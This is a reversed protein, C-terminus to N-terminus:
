LFSRAGHDFDFASFAFCKVGQKTAELATHLGAALNELGLLDPKKLDLGLSLLRRSPANRRSSFRM